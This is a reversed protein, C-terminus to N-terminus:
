AAQTEVPESAEASCGLVFDAARQAAQAAYIIERRDNKLAKLWGAIYGAALEQTSADIGAEASLIASTIEAVLEERSYDGSGFAPLVDGSVAPRNLRSAHGTSHGLEHFLVAYYAEPSTFQGPAPMKVADRAPTYYAAGGGHAILPPSPMAAVIAAAREIPEFTGCAQPASVGECQEVNYVQYFRMLVSPRRAKGKGTFQVSDNATDDTAADTFKWFVVPWYKQGPLVGGGRAEAQRRTLWYPSAFPALALIVANIGRYAKGSVLSRPLGGVWPQRWPAIGAELAAIISDTVLDAVTRKKSTM